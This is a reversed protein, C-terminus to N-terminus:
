ATLRGQVVLIGEGAGGSMVATGVEGLTKTAEAGISTHNEALLKKLEATHSAAAMRRSRGLVVLLRRSRLATAITQVYHLPRDTNEESFNIRGLAERITADSTKTTYRGWILDDATDSALRTQTSQHGYVTDPFVTNHLTEETKEPPETASTKRIRVVTATVGHNGACFQVVLSLALRDDPGGFFPLFIHRDGPTVSTSLGRDIILCVDAKTGAFIKRIMRM